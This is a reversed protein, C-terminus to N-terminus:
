NESITMPPTEGCSIIIRRFMTNYFVKKKILSDISKILHPGTGCVNIKYICLQSNLVFAMGGAKFFGGADMFTKWNNCINDFEQEARESNNYYMILLTNTPLGHYTKKMILPNGFFEISDIEECNLKKTIYIYKSIEIKDNIVFSANKKNHSKVISKLNYYVDQKADIKVSDTKKYQYDSNSGINTPKSGREEKCSFLLGLLLVYLMRSKLIKFM